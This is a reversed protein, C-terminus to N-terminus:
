VVSLRPYLSRLRRYTDRFVSYMQRYTKVSDFVPDIVEVTDPRAAVIDWDWLGVSVGAVLAAGLASGVHSSASRRMPAELVSALIECWLRSRAGGDTVAFDTICHGASTLVDVHHRFAFAVAELMARYVHPLRHNLSLGVITGRAAPDHIPTKEGLFYPLMVLGESGPSIVAAARDLEAFSLNGAFESALWKLVSGSTAMCGNLVFRGPICHYDIYLTRVPDFHDITLLLDGAGGLKVVAQGPHILGTPLISAIHDATGATIPTGEPLGTARSAAPTVEGVIEDSRRVLSFLSADVGLRRLLGPIWRREHPNWLGSELAWNAECCMTGTLRHGIFGYSGLVHATRAWSSPQHRQIWLLKPGVLQQSWVSGTKSFLEDDSVLKRLDEIERQARADNQQIAPRVSWGSTDIPVVAPVMGSLGVARIRTRDSRALGSLISGSAVCVGRWWDEPDEEAWGSQRSSLDHPCAADGVIHAEENLLIAKVATTGVDVGLIM